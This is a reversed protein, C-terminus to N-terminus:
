KKLVLIRGANNVISDIPHGSNLLSDVYNQNNVAHMVTKDTYIFLRGNNNFTNNVLSDVEKRQIVSDKAPILRVTSKTYLDLYSEIIWGDELLAMDKQTATNKLPEAKAYFLDYKFDRLWRISGFFNIVLLLGAMCLLITRKSFRTQIANMSGALITWIIVSQPIWFELNEPMWFYFFISYILLFWLLPILTLKYRTYVRRWKLLVMVLVIVTIIFLILTLILLFFAQQHSVSQVLFLEDTLNHYYFRRNLYDEIFKVKFVFHGGVFAHILGVFANFLTTLGLPFWYTDTNTYGRMWHIIEATTTNGLVFRGIIYYALLVLGGGAIAYILFSSVLNLHRRERWLRWLIIPTFLINAQHFLIALVHFAVVAYFDKKTFVPKSLYYLSLMLFFLPPMYVEINTSYFWMGFSFAPLCTGIFATISDYGFRNKLFKFVMVLTLTGWFGDIAEVLFYHPTHTFIMKLIGLIWYTSIHYLVHHPNFLNTGSEFENLYDIADHPASFNSALTCLFFTYFIVFVIVSSYRGSRNDM